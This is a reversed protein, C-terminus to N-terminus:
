GASQPVEDLPVFNAAEPGFERVRRHYDAPTWGTFRRFARIVHPQDYYGGDAALGAWDPTARLEGLATVFRHFRWMQAYEKPALGTAARVRDILLRHSVGATRAIDSIDRTPDAHIAALAATAVPDATWGVGRRALEDALAPLIRAPGAGRRVLAILGDVDPVVNRADLVRRAVETAPTAALAGLGGPRLEVGVHRIVPPSAIVLYESQIGSFFTDAVPTAAGARDYILYPESLNVILHMFPLPLIKEFPRLRPAELYWLRSVAGALPKPPAHEEFIVCGRYAM